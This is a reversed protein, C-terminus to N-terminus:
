RPTAILEHMASAPEIASPTRAERPAAFAASAVAEAYDGTSSVATIAALNVIDAATTAPPLVNVPRRLGLLIPGLVEARGLKKALQYGINGSTLDPFILVNADGKIVSQPYHERAIEETCAVEFHM